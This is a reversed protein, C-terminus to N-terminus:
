DQKEESLEKIIEVSWKAVDGCVSPCKDVHAGAEVFAKKDNADNFNFCHGFIKKQVECGIPSGYKDVFRNLLLQVYKWTHNSKGAKFGEYNRGTLRSIALLGAALAGCTGRTSLASGGTLADAAQFLKEDFSDLTEMIAALTCQSCHEKEQEYRYALQYAEEGPTLVKNM